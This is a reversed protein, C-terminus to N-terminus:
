VHQGRASLSTMCVRPAAIRNSRRFVKGYHYPHGPNPCFPDTSSRLSKEVIFKVGQFISSAVSALRYCLFLSCNVRAVRCLSARPTSTCAAQLRAGTATWDSARPRKVKVRGAEALQERKESHRWLELAPIGARAGSLLVYYAKPRDAKQQPLTCGACRWRVHHLSPDCYTCGSARARPM